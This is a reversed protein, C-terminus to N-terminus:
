SPDGVPAVRPVWLLRVIGLLSYAGVCGVLASLALPPLASGVAANARVASSVVLLALAAGTCVSRAVVPRGDALDGAAALAAAAAAPVALLVLYFALRHHGGSDAAAAAVALALPVAPSSLV